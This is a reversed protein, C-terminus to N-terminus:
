HGAPPDINKFAFRNRKAPALSFMVTQRSSYYLPSRGGSAVQAILREVLEGLTVDETVVRRSFRPLNDQINKREHRQFRTRAFVAEYPTIQFVARLQLETGSRSFDEASSRARGLSQPESNTVIGPMASLASALRRYFGRIRPPQMVDIAMARQKVKLSQGWGGQIKDTERCFIALFPPTQRGAM